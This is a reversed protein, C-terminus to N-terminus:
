RRDGGDRSACERYYITKFYVIVYKYTRYYPVSTAFVPSRYWKDTGEFNYIHNGIKRGKSNNM